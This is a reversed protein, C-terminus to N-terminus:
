AIRTCSGFEMIMKGVVIFGGVAPVFFVGFFVILFLLWGIVEMVDYNGHLLVPDMGKSVFGFLMGIVLWSMTFGRETKTSSQGTSFRSLIGVVIISIVGFLLPAFILLRSSTDIDPETVRDDRWIGTMGYRASAGRRIFRSCTPAYVSQLRAHTNVPKSAVVTIRGNSKVVGKTAGVMVLKEFAFERRERVLSVVQWAIPHIRKGIRWGGTAGDNSTGIFYEDMHGHGDTRFPDLKLTGVAGDFVGGRSRAEDMEESHVM